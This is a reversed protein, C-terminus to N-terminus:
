NWMERPWTRLCHSNRRCIRAGSFGTQFKAGSQCPFTRSKTCPLATACDGDEKCSKLLEYRRPSESDGPSMEMSVAWKVIVSPRKMPFENSSRNMRKRQKQNLADQVKIGERRRHSHYHGHGFAQHAFSYVSRLEVGRQAIRSGTATASPEHGSATSSTCPVILSCISQAGNEPFLVDPFLHNGLTTLRALVREYLNDIGEDPIKRSEEELRSFLQRDDRFRENRRRSKFYNCVQGIPLLDPSKAPWDLLEMLGAFNAMSPSHPPVNNQEWVCDRWGFVSDV